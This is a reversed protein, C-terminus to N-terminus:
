LKGRFTRGLRISRRRSKNYLEGHHQFQQHRHQSYEDRDYQDGHLHQQVRHGNIYLGDGAGNDHVRPNYEVNRYDNHFDRDNIYRDAVVYEDLVYHFVFTDADLYNNRDVSDYDVNYDSFAIAFDMGNHYYATRKDVDDYLVPVNGDMYNNGAAPYEDVHNYPILINSDVRNYICASCKDVTYQLVSIFEAMDCYGFAPYKDM